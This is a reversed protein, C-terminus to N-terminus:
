NFIPTNSINIKQLAPKKDITTSWIAPPAWGKEYARSWLAM